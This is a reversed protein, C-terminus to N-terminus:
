IHAALSSAMTDMPCATTWPNGDCVDGEATPAHGGADDPVALLRERIKDAGLRYMMM